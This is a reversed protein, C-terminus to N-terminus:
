LRYNQTTDNVGGGLGDGGRTQGRRYLPTSPAHTRTTSTTADCRRPPSSGACGRRRAEERWFRARGGHAAGAAQLPFSSPGPLLPSLHRLGRRAHVELRRRLLEVCLERARPLLLLEGGRRRRRQACASSTAAAGWRATWASSTVVLPSDPQEGVPLECARKHPSGVM